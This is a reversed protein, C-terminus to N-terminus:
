DLRFHSRDLPGTDQRTWDGRVLRLRIRWHAMNPVAVIALGEESLYKALRCLAAQPDRLHELVHSLLVVDFSREEFPLSDGELDAVIVRDCTSAAVVAEANSLTVGVVSIGRASMLRGNDGAGCGADLVRKATEPILALVEPNGANAYVIGSREESSTSM